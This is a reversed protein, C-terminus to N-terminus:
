APVAERASHAATVDYAAVDFRSLQKRFTYTTRPWLTTNRGHEDLYWSSCGGTSWVTRKMRRQLDDNWADQADRRPEVSAYAHTAMTRVADRIYDVQSEIMFVMSSHGLGTNPGVISFYNPFGHVTTGKYGAMGTERWVEALSRGERGVIHEAIPQETTFFGTAVVLVDIPRETGDATVIADGTIKAIGDTVLHVHDADLAPYYDNSILIRKCGIEFDPTVAERLAPDSIGRQINALALRKAPAALRPNVTFGPVLLERGWYIGTRYAKQVLPFHRFALRELRTYPRDGRPIVYPATRQYVDLSAAV